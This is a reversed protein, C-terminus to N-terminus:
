WMSFMMIAVVSEGGKGKSPEVSGGLQGRETEMKDLM